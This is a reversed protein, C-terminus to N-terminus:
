TYVRLEFGLVFVCFLRHSWWPESTDQVNASVSWCANSGGCHPQALLAKGMLPLGPPPPLPPPPPGAGRTTEEGGGGECCSASPQLAGRSTEWSCKVLQGSKPTGKVGMPISFNRFFTFVSLGECAPGMTTWQLYPLSHYSGRPHIQTPFSGPARHPSPLTMFVLACNRLRQESGQVEGAGRAGWPLLAGEESADWPSGIHLVLRLLSARVSPPTPDPLDV